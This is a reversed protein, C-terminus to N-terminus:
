TISQGGGGSRRLLVVRNSNTGRTFNSVGWCNSTKTFLQRNVLVGLREFPLGAAAQWVQRELLIRGGRVEGVEFAVHGGPRVLRALEALARRIMAMWGAAGRHQGLAAAGADLGAFWCRLWNDAAYDVVDLFPPSTVALAVAGAELPIDWAPGTFLCPHAGGLVAGGPMMGDRLLARSKRLILAAIDREPPALGLRANIRLQSAVSVAQNPPMSRGSFFGPSHGALRNLAVMRIWDAVPDPRDDGPPARADIWDRLAELRALTAPHYFALLEPRRVAGRSWDVRRLAAEVADPGVPRLRPRCMMVGLGSIDNGGARRGMLAAQLPTTGRGMFPDFVLDGPATLRSIFFEPLQPKFCARYSIEHIAHAQRQGATWFANVFYDIGEAREHLTASGPAAFALIDRVLASDAALAPQTQRM